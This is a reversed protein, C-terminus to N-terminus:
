RARRRCRRASRRRLRRGRSSGRRDPCDRLLEAITRGLVPHVLTPRSSSWRSSSSAGSTSARIRCSCRGATRVEGGFLLLDVDLTRPGYRPGRADRGFRASSRSRRRSCSRGAVLATELEVVANAFDPQPPGLARPATSGRARTAVGTSGGDAEIAVAAACSRARPTATRAVRPELRARPLGARSGREPEPRGAPRRRRQGRGRRRHLDRLDVDVTGWDGCRPCRAAAEDLSAKCERCLYRPKLLAADQIVRRYTAAAEKLRGRREMIMASFYRVGPDRCRREPDLRLTAEAEDIMELRLYLKALYFAPVVRSRSSEVLARM